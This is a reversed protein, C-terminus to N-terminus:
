GVIFELISKYFKESVEDNDTHIKVNVPNSIDISFIGLISKADLVYRGKILDIDEKFSLAISNFKKAKEITSLDLIYENKKVM